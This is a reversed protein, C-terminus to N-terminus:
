QSSRRLYGDFIVGIRGTNGSPLAQVAPYEVTVTFNVAPQLSIPPEMYYPRGTPFANAAWLSTAAATTAAFGSMEIWTKPPFSGLPTEDLQPKSLVKMRLLGTKYITKIDNIASVADDLLVGTASTTLLSPSFTNATVVNGPEFSVEISEILYEMGSPLQGQLQM